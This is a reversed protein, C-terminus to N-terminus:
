AESLDRATITMQDDDLRWTVASVIGTLPPLDPMVIQVAQGPTVTYDAPASPAVTYGRRLARQLIYDAAADHGPYPRNMEIFRTRQPYGATAVEYIKDDRKPDDWVLCLTNFWPADNSTLDIEDNGDILNEAVAVRVTGPVTYTEDVLHWARAEDQFLRLKTAALLPELYDWASTGLEWVIAEQGVSVLDVAKSTSANPTGNWSYTVYPFSGGTSGDFYGPMEATDTAIVQDIEMWNNVAWPTFASLGNNYSYFKIRAITAGAPATANEITYTNWVGTSTIFPESQEATGVLATSSRWEVIMVMVQAKSTRGSFRFSYETGAVFGPFDAYIGSSPTNAPTATTVATTITCRGFRINTTGTIAMAGAGSGVQTGYAWPAATGAEFSPNTVLNTRTLSPTTSLTSSVDLPPFMVGPTFASTAFAQAYADVIATVVSTNSQPRDRLKPVNPPIAVPTGGAWRFAQLQTEDNEVDLQVTAGLASRSRKFIRGYYVRTQPAITVPNLDLGDLTFTKTVTIRIQPSLRPDMAAYMSGLGSASVSISAKVYPSWTEDLTVSNSGPVTAVPTFVGAVSVEVLYDLASVTM